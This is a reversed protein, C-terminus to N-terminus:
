KSKAPSMKLPKAKKKLFLSPSANFNRQMQSSRLSLPHWLTRPFERHHRLAPPRGPLEARGEIKVLELDLLKQLMGDSAVGRVADIAAKTVPQRYAIIALTELAPGSLKKPKRLPFLHKVLGGFEPKTYVKWGKGRELLTFTRGSEEYNKILDQIAALVQEETVQAFEQYRALEEAMEPNPEEDELSNKEEEVLAELEAVRTQILRSLDAASLGEESAVLLAEVLNLLTM